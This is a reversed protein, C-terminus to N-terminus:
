ADHDLTGSDLPELGERTPSARRAACRWGPRARRDRNVFGSAIGPLGTSAVPVDDLNRGFPAAELDFGPDAAGHQLLQAQKGVGLVCLSAGFVVGLRPM